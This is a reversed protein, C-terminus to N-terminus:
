LLFLILIYKSIFLSSVWSITLITGFFIVIKLQFLNRFSPLKILNEKNIQIVYLFALWLIIMVLFAINGSYFGVGGRERESISHCSALRFSSLSILFLLNLCSVFCFYFSFEFSFQYLLFSTPIYCFSLNYPSLHCCFSSYNSSLFPLCITFPSLVTSLFVFFTSCLSFLALFYILKHM